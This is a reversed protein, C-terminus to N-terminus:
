YDFEASTPQVLSEFMNLANIKKLEEDTLVFDFIQMNENLHKISSAKPIVVFGQQVLWRLAVQNANKNHAKGIEKLLPNDTLQGRALPSYAVITINENKCFQALEHQNLLPHFEVQNVSLPLKLKQTIALFDMLHHITANSVGFSKIKGDDYLKKCAKFIEMYPLHHQPWHLLYQDLYETELKALSEECAALVRYYDLDQPSIKSTIFLEERPIKKIAKGIEMENYYAEATDIHRYGQELAQTVAQLAEKGQLNWTGLGLQPMAIGNNLKISPIKM